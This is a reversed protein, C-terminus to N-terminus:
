KYFCKVDKFAAIRKEYNCRADRITASVKNSFVRHAKYDSESGTRKYCRWLARKKRILKLIQKTIWPKNSSQKRVVSVTHKIVVSNLQKKFITWNDKVSPEVLITSWNTNFLDRNVLEYNTIVRCTSTIRRRREFCIQVDVKLVVHDSKGVPDLYDLNALLKDDSTIILDLTSPTQNTRYRTPETIIQELHSNTLVDCLLQSPIDFNANHDLPWTIDPLNFDGTIILKDCSDAIKSVFTFLKRDDGIASDPPRYICGLVFSISSNSLKLFLAENKGIESSLINITFSSCILDAVFICVGSGRRGDRDDRLLTYGNIVLTDPIAPSLWSESLMILTPKLSQVLVSLDDYKAM